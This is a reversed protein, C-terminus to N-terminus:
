EGQEEAEDLRDLAQVLDRLEQANCWISQRDWRQLRQNFRSYQVCVRVTQVTREADFDNRAPVLWNNRWLSVQFMGCRAKKIPRRKETQVQM